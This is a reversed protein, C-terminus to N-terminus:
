NRGYWLHCYIIWLILNQTVNEATLTLDWFVINQFAIWISVYKNEWKLNDVADGEQLDIEIIDDSRM